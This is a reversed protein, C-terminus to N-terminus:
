TCILLYSVPCHAVCVDLFHHFFFVSLCGQPHLTPASGGTATGGGSGAAPASATIRDRGIQVIGSLSPLNGFLSKKRRQSAPIGCSQSLEIGALRHKIKTGAAADVHQKRRLPHARGPFRVTEVHGVFHEGQGVLVLALGADFLTSNRFPSISCM